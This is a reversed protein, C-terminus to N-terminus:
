SKQATFGAFASWAPQLTKMNELYPDEAEIWAEMMYFNRGKLDHGLYLRKRGLHSDLEALNFRTVQHAGNIHKVQISVNEKPAYFNGEIVFPLKTFKDTDIKGNDIIEPAEADSYWYYGQYHYDPIEHLAIQQTVM